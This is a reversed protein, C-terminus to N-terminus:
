ELGYQKKLDAGSSQPEDAGGRGRLVMEKTKKLEMTLQDLKSAASAADDTYSPLYRMEYEAQEAIPLGAGSLMRKLADVGSLIKRRVEAQTSSSNWGAQTRDVLGTAEGGVIKTRIAPAEGLFSDALGIRGALDGSLQEAPGGPIPEVGADPNNPDAPRYGTPVKYDGAFVQVGASPPSMQDAIVKSLTPPSALLYAREAPSAKALLGTGSTDDMLGQIAENLKRRDADETDLASGAVLGKMADRPGGGLMGLGALMLRNSYPHLAQGGARFGRRLGGFMGQATGLLNNGAFLPQPQARPDFDTNAM